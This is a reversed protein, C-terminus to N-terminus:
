VLFTHAAGNVPSIRTDSWLQFRYFVIIAPCGVAPAQTIPVLHDSADSYGHPGFHTQATVQAAKVPPILPKSGDEIYSM